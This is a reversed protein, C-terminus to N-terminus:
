LAQALLILAQWGGQRPTVDAATACYDLTAALGEALEAGEAHCQMRLGGGGHSMAITIRGRPMSASPLAAMIVAGTIWRLRTRDVTPLRGQVSAELTLDRRALLAALRQVEKAIAVGACIEDTNADDHDLQQILQNREHAARVALKIQEMREHLRESGQRQALEAQGGIITLENNLDHALRPAARALIRQKLITVIPDEAHQITSTMAKPDCDRTASILPWM